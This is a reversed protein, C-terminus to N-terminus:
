SADPEELSMVRQIREADVRDQMRVTDRKMRYLMRLTAVEVTQGKVTVPRSEIGDYDFAKGLRTLIDILFSEDPPGYAVAPYEGALDEYRIEDIAPDDWHERLAAKLADINGPSPQVFLDLDDTARLLGHLNMALGGVVKYRVGHHNFRALLGLMGDFLLSEM